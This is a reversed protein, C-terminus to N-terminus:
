FTFCIFVQGGVLREKGGKAFVGVDFSYGANRPSIRLGAEGLVFAGRANDDAKFRLGNAQGGAKGDWQQEWAAGVYGKVLGDDRFNGSVRGGIRTVLSDIAEM